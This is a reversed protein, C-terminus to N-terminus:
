KEINAKKKSLEDIAERCFTCGFHRLFVLLIPNKESMQGLTNGKNTCMVDLDFDEALTQQQM